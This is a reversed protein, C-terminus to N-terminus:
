ICLICVPFRFILVLIQIRIMTYLYLYKSEFQILFDANNHPNKIIFDCIVSVLISFYLDILIYKCAERRSARLFPDAKRGGVKSIQLFKAGIKHQVEREHIGIGVVAIYM